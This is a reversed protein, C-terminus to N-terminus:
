QPFELLAPRHQLCDPLRAGSILDYQSEKRRRSILYPLVIFSSIMNIIQRQVAAPMRAPKYFQDPRRQYQPYFIIVPVVIQHFQSLSLDGRQQYRSDETRILGEEPPIAPQMAIHQLTERM